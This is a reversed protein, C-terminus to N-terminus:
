ENDHKENEIIHVMSLFRLKTHHASENQGQVWAETM